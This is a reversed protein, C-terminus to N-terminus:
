NCQGFYKIVLVLTNTSVGVIMGTLLYYTPLYLNIRGFGWGSVNNVYWAFVMLLAFLLLISAAIGLM